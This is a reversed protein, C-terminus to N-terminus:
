DPFHHNGHASIVVGDRRRTELVQCIQKYQKKQSESMEGNRGFQDRLRELASNPATRIDDVDYVTCMEGGGDSDTYKM